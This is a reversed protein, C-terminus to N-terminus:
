QHPDAPHDKSSDTDDEDDPGWRVEATEKGEDSETASMTQRRRGQRETTCERIYVLSDVALRTELNGDLNDSLVLEVLGLNTVDGGERDRESAVWVRVARM